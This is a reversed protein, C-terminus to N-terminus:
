VTHLILFHGIKDQLVAGKALYIFHQLTLWTFLVYTIKSVILVVSLCHCDGHTMHYNADINSSCQVVLLGTLDALKAEKSPFTYLM